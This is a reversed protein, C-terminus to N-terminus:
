VQRRPEEDVNADELDLMRKLVMEFAEAAVEDAELKKPGRCIDANERVYKRVRQWMAQYNPPAPPTYCRVTGVPLADERVPLLAALCKPCSVGKTSDVVGHVSCFDGM